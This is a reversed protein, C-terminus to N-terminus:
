TKPPKAKGRFGKIYPILRDTYSQLVVLVIVVVVIILAYFPLPDVPVDTVTSTADSLGTPAKVVTYVAAGGWLASPFYDLGVPTSFAYQGTGDTTTTALVVDGIHLAVSAAELPKKGITATGNAELRSGISIGNTSVTLVNTITTNNTNASTQFSLKAPEAAYATTARSTVACFVFSLCCILVATTFLVQRTHHHM